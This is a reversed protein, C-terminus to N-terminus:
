TKVAVNFLRWDSVKAFTFYSMGFVHYLRPKLDRADLGIVHMSLEGTTVASYWIEIRM